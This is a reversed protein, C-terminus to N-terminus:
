LLLYGHSALVGGALMAVAFGLNIGWFNLAYARTRDAPSVLDAIMASTAPRSANGALGALFSFVVILAATHSLGLAVLMLASGLNAGLMTPRRGIRDALVGGVVASVAAGAANLAAVFGAFAASRGLSETLYYSMFPLVFAGTRNVLTGVWLWWFARPLGGVDLM